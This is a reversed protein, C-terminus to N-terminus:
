PWEIYGVIGNGDETALIEYAALGDNKELLALLCSETTEVTNEGLISQKLFAAKQECNQRSQDNWWLRVTFRGVVIKTMIERFKPTIM